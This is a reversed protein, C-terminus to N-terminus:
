SQVIREAVERGSMDKWAMHKIPIKFKSMTLRETCLNSVIRIGQKGQGLIGMIYPSTQEAITNVINAGMSSCVNVLLDVVLMEEGLYRIRMDEVGGGRKVMSECQM